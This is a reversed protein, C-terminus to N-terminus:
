TRRRMLLEFGREKGEGRDWCKCRPYHWAMVGTSAFTGVAVVYAALTFADGMSYRYRKQVTFLVGLFCSLVVFISFMAIILVCGRPWKSRAESRLQAPGIAAVEVSEIDELPPRTRQRIEVGPLPNIAVDSSISALSRYM